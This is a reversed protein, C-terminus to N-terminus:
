AEIELRHNQERAEQRAYKEALSLGTSVRQDATSRTPTPARGNRAPPPQQWDKRMWTRWAAVWDVHTGGKGRWWDIFIETTTDIDLGPVKEAAWTRMADSISFDDPIRHPRPAAKAAVEGSELNGKGNEMKGEGTGVASVSGSGQGKSAGEIPSRHGKSRPTDPNDAKADIPEFPIAHVVGLVNLEHALIGGLLPNSLGKSAGQIAKLRLSNKYGGDHKVFTRILLEERDWDVVIFLADSLEQLAKSLSKITMGRTNGAWRKLTMPVIGVSTITSQSTLMLYARQAESTLDRFDDDDWISTSTMGFHRPM